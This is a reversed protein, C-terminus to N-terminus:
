VARAFVRKALRSSFRLCGADAIRASQFADTSTAKATQEDALHTAKPKHAQIPDDAKAKGPSQSEMNCATSGEKAKQLHQAQPPGAALKNSQHVPQNSAIANVGEQAASLTQSAKFPTLLQAVAADDTCVELFHLLATQGRSLCTMGAEHADCVTLRRTLWQLVSRIHVELSDSDCSTKRVAQACAVLRAVVARQQASLLQVVANYISVDQQVTVVGPPTISTAAAHAAESPAIHAAPSLLAAITQQLPLPLIPEQLSQLWMQLLQMAVAPTARLVSEWKGQNVQLSMIVFMSRLHGAQDDISSPQTCLVTLTHVGVAFLSATCQRIWSDRLRCCCLSNVASLPVPYALDDGLM